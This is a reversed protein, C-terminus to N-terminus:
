GTLVRVGAGTIVLVNKSAKLLEAADDITRFQPLRRRHALERYLALGLLEWVAGGDTDFMPPVAIGFASLLKLPTYRESDLTEEVFREVGVERLRARLQAGEEKTCRDASPEPPADASHGPPFKDPAGDSYEYQEAATDLIDDYLSAAGISDTDSGGDGQSAEEGDDDQPANGDDLAPSDLPVPPTAGAASPSTADASMAPPRRSHFSPRGALGSLYTDSFGSHKRNDSL